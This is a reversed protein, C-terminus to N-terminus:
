PLYKKEFTDLDVEICPSTGYIVAEDKHGLVTVTIIINFENTYAIVDVVESDPNEIKVDYGQRLFYREARDRLAVRDFGGRSWRLELDYIAQLALEEGTCSDLSNTPAPEAKVEPAVAAATAEALQRTRMSVQDIDM